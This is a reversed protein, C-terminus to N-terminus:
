IEYFTEEWFRVMKMNYNLKLKEILPLTLNQAELITFYPSNFNAKYSLIGAGAFRPNIEIFYYTGESEIFQMNCAGRYAIANLFQCCLGQLKENKVTVGKTSIGSKTELRKRPMCGYFIGDYSSFCDVTYEQGIIFDQVIFKSLDHNAVFVDWEEQINIIRIGISSVGGIPKAIVPFKDLTKGTYIQPVNIGLEKAKISAVFKNNCLKIISQENVSWFTLEPYKQKLISHCDVELDHIPIVCDIKYEDIINLISKEYNVEDTVPAIQFFHDVFSAGACDEYANTDTGFLEYKCKAITLGKIVSIATNSGLSTILIKM